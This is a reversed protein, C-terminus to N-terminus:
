LLNAPDLEFRWGTPLNTCISVLHNRSKAKIHLRCEYLGNVREHYSPLPGEIAVPYEKALDRSLAEAAKWAQDSTKKRISLRLLYCFPPFLFDKREAIEREYFDDWNGSLADQIAQNNPNYTQIIAKGTRHGRGIRGLVQVLLQYTKEEATFDPIQLSLDANLVGVLGLNPLDLGKTILQTGIVIDVSGTKIADFHQEIRENKKNDTDFRMVSHSPFLKKISTEISKTGESKFIIDTNSCDPCAKPITSKRNCTHCRLEFSDGHFTMPTGCHECKAHWGCNSCLTIRSTGRRNLFLLVQGHEHLTKRIATILPSSLQNHSSLNKTDKMDVVAYNSQLANGPLLPRETLRIIPREKSAALYYESVTPTATGHLVLANHLKGITAAVRLAHYAPTNEQKYADDHAEDIIVAGINKLPLLLASRPGIVILPKDSTLVQLWVTRRQAATLNSHTIVVQAGFQKALITFTQPLLGIEPTLVIASRNEKLIKTIVEIYIRTKGTGTDGHLVSTGISAIQDLAVKQAKTLTPIEYVESNQGSEIPQKLATRVTLSSPILQQVTAGLPSAYYDRIWFGLDITQQPVPPLDFIHNINKTAFRPKTVEKVIVGAALLKRMPVLVLQGTLLTKENAYTLPERGKYSDEAVAVEYYKM